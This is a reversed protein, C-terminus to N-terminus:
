KEHLMAYKPNNIILLSTEESIDENELDVSKIEYGVSELFKDLYTVNEEGHNSTKTAVLGDPNTVNLIASTLALEGQFGVVNYYGYYSDIELLLYDEQKLVKYENNKECEVIISNESLSESSSKTYKNKFTPNKILDIYEVDLWKDSYKAYYSDVLNIMYQLTAVDMAKDRERLFYVTVGDTNSDLLSESAASMTYVRDSTMDFDLRSNVGILSFVVNVHKLSM